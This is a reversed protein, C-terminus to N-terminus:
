VNINFTKSLWKNIGEDIKSRFPAAFLSLKAEVEMEGERCILTATAMSSNLRVEKRAADREIEFKAPAKDVFRDIHSSVTDFLQQASQGPIQVKRSYSPM